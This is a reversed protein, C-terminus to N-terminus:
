GVMELGKVGAATSSGFTDIEVGMRQAIAVLLNSFPVNNKRDFALHGGHKFGGGALVLPLNRWDHSSSNGLNSGYLVATRDLLNSGNEKVSKLRTLFSALARFEALEILKLEELKAPDLGHHSLGHWEHTVGDIVPVQNLGSLKLTVTRTSDTQFALAVMDTLLKFRGVADNRNQIDTPPPVAITPKPKNTWGESERLRGELGRVASFYEDLKQRDQPGLTRELKKAEGAVTDLISRGRQLGRQQAKVESETGNVFMQSFLKAPSSESPIPVGNSTWSLSEGGTSLILSPFRTKVGVKEAILQDVSITNKFGALGPRRASTLWTMESTHGNAGSQDPHSVGSFVTLDNRHDKLAELYPTLKYDRGEESPFLFPTHFGLTACIAVFRRPQEAAAARALAPTMADLLPLSLAVGSGRLFARRSLHKGTLFAPM